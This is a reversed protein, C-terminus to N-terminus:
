PAAGPSGAHRGFRADQPPRGTAQCETRADKTPHFFREVVDPSVEEIRAPSWKPARGGDIMRAEIGEYFDPSSLCAVSVRYETELTDELSPSTLAKQISKLTVKLATPSNESIAQAAALSAPTAVEALRALIGEVTDASYAYEIWEQDMQLPPAPGDTTYTAIASELDGVAADLFADIRDSPIFHDALGCAIADAGTIRNGTLALHLGLKGPIRALLYTSGVDPVFGISVEPLGIRSRETVLRISGHASLGVGGGLVLGDMVAVYPKPYRAIRANLEYEDRWHEARLRGDQLAERYIAIIDGGACLGKRGAGTLIVTSIGPDAEWDRLQADIALIMARNLANLVRPRNLRISGVRGLVEFQVEASHASM